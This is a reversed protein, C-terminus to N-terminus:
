VYENGKDRYMVLHQSALRDTHAPDDFPGVAVVTPLEPLGVLSRATASDLPSLRRQDIPRTQVQATM